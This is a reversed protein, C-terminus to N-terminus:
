EEDTPLLLPILGLNLTQAAIIIRGFTAGLLPAQFVAAPTVTAGSSEPRPEGASAKQEIIQQQDVGPGQAAQAGSVIELRQEETQKEEQEAAEEELDWLDVVEEGKEPVKTGAQADGGQLNEFEDATFLDFEEEPPPSAPDKTQKAEKEPEPSNSSLIEVEKPLSVRPVPKAKPQKIHKRKRQTILPPGADVIAAAETPDVGTAKMMLAALSPSSPPHIPGSMLPPTALKTM